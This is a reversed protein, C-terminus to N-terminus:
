NPEGCTRHVGMPRVLVHPSGLSVLFLVSGFSMVARTRTLLCSWHWVAERGVSWRRWSTRTMLREVEGRHRHPDIRNQGGMQVYAGHPTRTSSSAFDLFVSVQFIHWGSKKARLVAADLSTTPPSLARATTGPLAFALQQVRHGRVVGEGSPFEMGPTVYSGHPDPSTTPPPLARATTRPYVLAYKDLHGLDTPPSLARASNHLPCCGSPHSPLCPPAQGSARSPPHTAM